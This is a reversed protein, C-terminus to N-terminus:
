EGLRTLCAHSTNTTDGDEWLVLAEPYVNQAEAENGWDMRTWRTLLILGVTKNVYFPSYLTRASQKVGEDPHTQWRVLDGPAVTPVEVLRYSRDPEDIPWHRRPARSRRYDLKDYYDDLQPLM